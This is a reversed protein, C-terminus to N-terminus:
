SSAVVGGGGGARREVEEMLLGVVGRAIGEKAQKKGFVDETLVGVPGQLRSGFGAKENMQANTFVAHGSYYATGVTQKLRYELNGLGLQMRLRNMQAVISVDADALNPVAPTTNAAGDIGVSNLDTHTVTM